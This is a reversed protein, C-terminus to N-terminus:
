QMAGERRMKEADKALSALVLKLSTSLEAFNLRSRRPSRLM